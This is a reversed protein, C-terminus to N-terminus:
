LINTASDPVSLVSIAEEDAYGSDFEPEAGIPESIANSLSDMAKKPIALNKTIGLALGKDMMEGQEEM